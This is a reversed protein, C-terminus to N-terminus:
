GIPELGAYSVLLKKRVKGKNSAFEVEVEEDDSTM